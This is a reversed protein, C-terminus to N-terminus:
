EEKTVWKKIKVEVQEVEFCEGDHNGERIEYYWDTFPSGSRNHHLSWFKDNKKFIIRQWEYKNDAIWDGKEVITISKETEGVDLWYIEKLEEQTLKLKAM